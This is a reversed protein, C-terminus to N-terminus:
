VRRRHEGSVIGSTAMCLASLGMADEHKRAVAQEERLYLVTARKEAEAGAEHDLHSQYALLALAVAQIRNREDQGDANPLMGAILLAETAPRTWDIPFDAGQAAVREQAQELTLREM